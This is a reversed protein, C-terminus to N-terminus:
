TPRLLAANSITWNLTSLTIGPALQLQLGVTGENEASLPPSKSDRQSCAVSCAAVAMGLVLAKVIPSHM